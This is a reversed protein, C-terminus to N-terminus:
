RKLAKIWGTMIVFRARKITSLSTSLGHRSKLIKKIKTDSDSSRPPDGYEKKIAAIVKALKSNPKAAPSNKVAPAAAPARAPFELRVQSMAFRRIISGPGLMSQSIRTFASTQEIFRAISNRTAEVTGPPVVPPAAALKHKRRRSSDKRKAM